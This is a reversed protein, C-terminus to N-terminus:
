TTPGGPLRKPGRPPVNREELLAELAMDPNQAFARDVLEMIFDLLPPHLMAEALQNAFRLLRARQSGSVRGARERWFQAVLDLEAGAPPALVDPAYSQLLKEPAVKLAFAFGELVDIRWPTKTRLAEAFEPSEPHHPLALYGQLVRRLNDVKIRDRHDCRYLFVAADRAVDRLAPKAGAELAEMMWKSLLARANRTVVGDLSGDAMHRM